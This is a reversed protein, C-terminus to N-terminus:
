RRGLAGGAGPHSGRESPQPGRPLGPIKAALEEDAASGPREGPLHPRHEGARLAVTERPPPPPMTLGWSRVWGRAVRGDAGAGALHGRGWRLVEGQSKTISCVTVGAVRAEELRKSIELVQAHYPTLIAMDKPDVRGSVLQKALCVQPVLPYWHLWGLAQGAKPESM